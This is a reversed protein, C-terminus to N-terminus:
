DVGVIYAEGAKPRSNDPGSALLAGAIVEDVGDGDVDGAALSFGLNDNAEAGFIIAKAEDEILDIEQQLGGGAIVYVEGGGSRRDGCSDALPAGILIDPDGDGTVDGAAVSFGLGDNENAGTIRVSPDDVALDLRAPLDDGGKIVYVEGANNRDAAPGDADRSGIIVDTVGDGTVDAAAVAHGLSDRLRAGTVSLLPPADSALDLSGGDPPVDIAYALGASTLTADGGPTGQPVGVILEGVGDDDVDGVALHGPLSDNSTAGYVTFFPSATALDITPPLDTSGPVVHLEGARARSNDPGAGAIAGIIIDDPGNGTVEGSQVIFGSFDGADIGSIVVDAEGAAVDVTGSLGARGYIVYTEGANERGEPAAFRAGILADAIGDGNVDGAAVSLGLNEQEGGGYVVFGQYDGADVVAPPPDGGFVIYAEGANLRQDDPGDALPAGVLADDYGDANFDAAALSFRDGLYDVDFGGSITTIPEQTALDVNCVPLGSADTVTAPSSSEGGCAVSASVALALLCAFFRGSM